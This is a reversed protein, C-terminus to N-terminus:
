FILVLHLMLFSRGLTATHMVIYLSFSCSSWCVRLPQRCFKLVSLRLELNVFSSKKTTRIQSPQSRIGALKLVKARQFPKRSSSIRKQFPNMSTSLFLFQAIFFISSTMSSSTGSSCVGLLIRCQKQTVVQSKPMLSSSNRPWRMFKMNQTLYRFSPLILECLHNKWAMQLYRLGWYQRRSSM